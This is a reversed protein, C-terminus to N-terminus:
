QDGLAAQREQWAKLAALYRRREIDYLDFVCPDCGNGCCADDEPLEPPVPEPDPDSVRGSAAHTRTRSM